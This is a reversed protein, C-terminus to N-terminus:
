DWVRDTFNEYIDPYAEDLGEIFSYSFDAFEEKQESVSRTDSVEEFDILRLTGDDMVMINEDHIDNHLLRAEFLKECLKRIEQMKPIIEEIFDLVEQKYVNEKKPDELVEKVKSTIEKKRTGYLQWFNMKGKLMNYSYQKDSEVVNDTINETSLKGIENCFMPRLLYRQDPDIIALRKSTKKIWEVLSRKNTESFMEQFRIIKTVYNRPDDGVCPVGPSIVFGNAGKGLVAGGRRRKITKRRRRTKRKLTKKRM